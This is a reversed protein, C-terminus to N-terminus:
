LVVFHPRRSMLVVFGCFFPTTKSLHKLLHAIIAYKKFIEATGAWWLGGGADWAM